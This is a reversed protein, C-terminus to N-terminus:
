AFEDALKEEDLEAWPRQSHKRIAAYRAPHRQASAMPGPAASAVRCGWFDCFTPCMGIHGGALSM